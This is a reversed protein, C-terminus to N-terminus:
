CYYATITTDSYVNRSDGNALGDSFGQLYVFGSYSYGWDDVSITHAGGPVTVYAVSDGVYNGDVYISADVLYQQSDLCQVTLQYVNGASTVSITHATQVNNFTYSTIAGQNVGDVYVDTIEYGNNASMTFTQSSGQAVNVQGSPSITSGADSSASITYHQLPIGINGNGYVALWSTPWSSGQPIQGTSNLIVWNPTFGSGYRSLCSSYFSTGWLLESASDLAHNVTYQYTLAYDFFEEVWVGYTHTGSPNPLNQSLSASGAPFGIYVQSGSDPNAYGDDSIDQAVNFGSTNPEVYRHTFAYPIGRATTDPLQGQPYNSYYDNSLPHCTDNAGLGSYYGNNYDGSLCASIFAFTVEGQNVHSYVQDDYVANTPASIRQAYNGVVSGNEDEFMYHFISPDAPYSATGVGHDFDVVAVNSGYNSKLSSLDTLISSNLSGPDGQQNPSGGNPGAFGASSFDSGITSAVQEQTLIEPYTKRWYTHPPQGILQGISESGFVVAGGSTTAKVNPISNFLIISSSLMICILIGVAIHSLRKLLTDFHARHKKKSIILRPHVNQHQIPQLKKKIACVSATVIIGVSLLYLLWVALNPNAMIALSALGSVEQTTNSNPIQNSNVALNANTSATLNSPPPLTSIAEQASVVQGTDAWIDVEIGYLDGYWKNLQVGVRWVPYLMVPSGNHTVDSNTSSAFLLYAFAVNSMNFNNPAFTNNDLPVSWSHAKATNLALTEAQTKSLTVSTTGITYYQWNDVFYSLSDNNFGLAVFKSPAPIGNITYTWKYTLSSNIASVQLQANGSTETLNKNAGVNSLMSELEGYIPGTTYNQYNSLFNQAVGVANAAEPKALIPSGVSNLVQLMQLSGNSFTCAVNLRSASSTLNYEIVQQPVAGLISSSSQPLTDSSMTYKALNLGVVNSLISVGKQQLTSPSAYANPLLSLCFSSALIVILVTILITTLLLRQPKKTM